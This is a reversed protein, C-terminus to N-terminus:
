SHCGVVLGAAGAFGGVAACISRRRRYASVRQRFAAFSALRASAFLITRTHNSQPQSSNNAFSLVCGFPAPNSPPLSKGALPLLTGAPLLRRRAPCYLPALRAQHLKGLTAFTAAFVLSVPVKGYIYCNFLIFVIFFM